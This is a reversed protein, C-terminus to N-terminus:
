KRGRSRHFFLLSSSSTKKEAMFRMARELPVQVWARSQDLGGYEKLSKLQPAELQQRLIGEEFERQNRPTHNPVSDKQLHNKVQHKQFFFIIGGLILLLAILSLAAEQVKRTNIDRTEHATM